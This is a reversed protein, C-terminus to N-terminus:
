ARERERWLVEYLRLPDEFGKLSVIGQDAFLYGKGAVLYRVGEPVLIQGPAAHDCVRRALQVATGFLDRDEAVPEGANLGIRVGLPPGDGTNNHRAVAQQIAISAEIARSASPFSAMIGDGTHKTESGGRARLAERVIRDHARVLEHARADGDRQTLSTSGEIDTFLVTVFESPASAQREQEAAHYSAHERLGVFEDMAHWIEMNGELKGEIVRMEAAPIQAALTRGLEIPPWPVDTSDIVLTPMTISSLLTSADFTDIEAFARAATEHTMASRLFIALEHAAEGQAWGHILAHAISETFLEWSAPLLGIIASMEPTSMADSSRAFTQNLVLHSVREPHRAAYTIAVPGGAWGGVLVFRDAGARNVVAELDAVYAELSYDSVDHSSSGSGRGDYRILRREDPVGPPLFAAHEEHCELQINSFPLAESISVFTTGTGIDYFAISAGGAGAAYQIRPPEM